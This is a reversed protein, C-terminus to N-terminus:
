SEKIREFIRFMLSTQEYEFQYVKRDDICEEMEVSFVYVKKNYNNTIYMNVTNSLYNNTFTIIGGKYLNNDIIASEMLLYSIGLCQLKTLKPLM